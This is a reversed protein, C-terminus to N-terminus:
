FRYRVGFTPVRPFGQSPTETTRPKAGNPDPVLGVEMAVANDRNLMNIVEVYFSWRGTDGGPRFTVRADIRFYWPLRGSHLNAMGGLDAQYVLRGDEDTEPVLGLVPDRTAAVRVGVAPTYPFGSAMRTTTGVTWRPTLRNRLVLTAAHRRDYEFPYRFGYTERHAQGYAYSFWGGVRAAPDLREAYFDVGWADGAGGNGPQVTIQAGTPIDGLLDAPFRYESIRQLREAETELRGVLLDRFLKHYGELRVRMGNAFLKDIGVVTHIAREHGLDAADTLDLFYDAQILKEYGPSQTYLGGAARLRLGDGFDWEAAIRPSLTASGSTTSADWRVGPELTFRDAVLLTGALWVGSRIGSLRSDVADPLASGGQISSPNAQGANRIGEINQVIGSRLRHVEFGVELLRRSDLQFGLEQRLLYDTVALERDFAVDTLAGQEQNARRDDDRFSGDFDLAEANRYASLITTATTRNGLVADLRLAGLDTSTDSLLDLTAEDEEDEFSFNTDERSRIGTVQLRHGPGFEWAGQFQLDAFSPFDQDLVRGVVLDYYTRRGTLLFAGAPGPLPGELVMNADTISLSSTAGFNRSGRRNEVVLLSSLRDGYKAGFGGASLSFNRVAEPNFASVLGFLRYPNHVEIGDMLTLNQDPTGGRVALRSGFDQTAAVGPLTALARFINDVTGPAELVQAPAVSTSSIEEEEVPRATVAVTESIERPLLRIIWPGGPRPVPVSLPFYAEATVFVSTAGDPLAIEFRGDAGSFAEPGGSTVPELVVLAGPVPEGTVGDRVEGGRSQASVPAAALSWLAAVAGIGRGLGSRM